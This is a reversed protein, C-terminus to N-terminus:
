RLILEVAHRSIRGYDDILTRGAETGDARHFVLCSPGDFCVTMGVRRALQRALTFGIMHGM